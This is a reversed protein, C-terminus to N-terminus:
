FTRNSTLVHTLRAFELLFGWSLMRILIHRFVVGLLDYERPFMYILVIMLSSCRWAASHSLTLTCPFWAHSCTCKITNAFSTIVSALFSFLHPIICM